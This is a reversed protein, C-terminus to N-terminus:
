KSSTKDTVTEGVVDRGILEDLTIGYYDALLECIYISPVVEDREYRSLNGNNIGTAAEIEKLTKGRLIRQEKFTEGYKRV